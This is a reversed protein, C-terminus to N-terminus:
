LLKAGAAELKARIQDDSLKDLDSSGGIQEGGIWINPVTKHAAIKPQFGEAKLTKVAFDATSLLQQMYQDQVLSFFDTLLCTPTLPFFQAPSFQMRLDLELVRYPQKEDPIAKGKPPKYEGLFQNIRKQASECYPCYSKSFMTVGRPDKIYEIINAKAAEM